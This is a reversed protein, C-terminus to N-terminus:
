VLWRRWAALLRERRPWNGPEPRLVIRRADPGEVAFRLDLRPTLWDRVAAPWEVAVIAGEDRAELMSPLLDRRADEGPRYLDYHALWQPAGAVRPTLVHRNELTFTPSVVPDEAGLREALAAVFTTKGAGLDGDLCLVDGPALLDALAHAMAATAAPEPAVAVIRGDDARMASM